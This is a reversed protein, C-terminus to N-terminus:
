CPGHISRAKVAAGDVWLGAAAPAAQVLHSEPASADATCPFAALDARKGAELSGILHGLGLAEAARSTVMELLTHAPPADPHNQSLFRLEELPALGVNSAASDTGIAVRVGARLYDRYPHPAHGFFHHARPCYVVTHGAAALREADGEGNYNYHALTGPPLGHTCAELYELPSLSPSRVGCQALLADLFPHLSASSGRIFACEERTEAWHTCWPRQLEAALRVSGEVQARPVTYPAHPTIGVTLLDDEEVEAVAARLEALNRPPQDALSLLEVFCVKRFPIHKLVPWSLNCRSIDGVCTVGAALSQRAGAVVGAQEREFQGPQARLRVLEPLWSWFPGPPVQGAYCTLELHAHPNVLGPMLITDGLDEVSDGAQTVEAARGVAAIRRDQIRVAGDRIPPAGIPLVWRSRLIM